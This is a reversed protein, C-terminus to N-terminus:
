FINLGIGRILYREAREEIVIDPKIKWLWAEINTERNWKKWLYTIQSFDDTLYPIIANMMSDRFVLAKPLSTDTNSYILIKNNVQQTIDYSYPKKPILKYFKDEPPPLSLMNYLNHDGLGVGTRKIIVFDDIKRPKINPLHKSAEKSIKHYAFYGGLNNWHTDGKYYLPLDPYKITAFDNKLYIIDVNSNSELYEVLLDVNTKRYINEYGAPSFEPYISLKDPAIVFLYKIGKKALYNRKNELMNKYYRFIDDYGFPLFGMHNSLTAGDKVQEGNYYLWGRKGV